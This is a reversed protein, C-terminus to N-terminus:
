IEFALLAKEFVEMPMNVIGAGIIGAGTKKNAIGTNIYPVIGTEIVKLVDIGSPTGEFDLLPITYASSKSVTISKMARTIAIAEDASGGVLQTIGLAAAMAFAGIGSTETIASDGLDPNADDASFPPFYRGKVMPAKATFWVGEMGSVQIGAETGNRAMVTVLTSMPVGRAADMASKCAAMSHNLYFRNNYYFIAALRELVSNEVGIRALHIVLTKWLLATAAIVRNNCDDGMHLAQATIEKLDIGGSARVARGLTPAITDRIFCLTEQKDDGYAGFSFLRGMSETNFPSYALNGNERNEIILVPMNANIVGTMPGVAKLHHCPTFEFEGSAAIKEAEEPNSARGEYILGCIVSGKMPGCMNEWKVPPGAHAITNPKFGPIVEGALGVDVWVPRADIVKKVAKQNAEDILHRKAAIANWKKNIEAGGKAPPQWDLSVFPASGSIFIDLGQNIISVPM